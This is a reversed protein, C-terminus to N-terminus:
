NKYTFEYSGLSDGYPISDIKNAGEPINDVNEVNVLVKNNNLNITIKRVYNEDNKTGEFYLEAKGNKITATGEVTTLKFIFWEFTITDNNISKITFKNYDNKEEYNESSHWTGVYENIDEIKVQENNNSENNINENVIINDNDNNNETKNTLIDKNTLLIVILVILIINIIVLAAILYNFKKESKM